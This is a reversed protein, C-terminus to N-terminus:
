AQKKIKGIGLITSKLYVRQFQNEIKESFWLDISFTLSFYNPLITWNSPSSLLKSPDYVKHARYFHSTHLGKATQKVLLEQM